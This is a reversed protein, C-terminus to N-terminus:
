ESKFYNFDVAQLQLKVILKYFRELLATYQLLYYNTSHNVIDELQGHIGARLLM